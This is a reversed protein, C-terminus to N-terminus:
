ISIPLGLFTPSPDRDRRIIFMALANSWCSSPGGALDHTIWDLYTIIHRRAEDLLYFGPNPPLPWNLAAEWGTEGKMAQLSLIEHGDGVTLM